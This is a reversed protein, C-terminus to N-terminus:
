YFLKLNKLCHLQLNKDEGIKYTLVMGIIIVNLTTKKYKKYKKYNHSNPKAHTQKGKSTFLASLPYNLM